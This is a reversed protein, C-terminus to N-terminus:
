RTWQHSKGRCAGGVGSPSFYGPKCDCWAKTGSSYCMQSARCPVQACPDSTNTALTTTAPSSTCGNEGYGDGVWGEQCACEHTGQSNICVANENCNNMTPDDSSCENIDDCRIPRYSRPIELDYTQIDELVPAYGQQCGCEYQIPPDHDVCYMGVGTCPPDEAVCENLLKCAWYGDGYAGDQCVCVGSDCRGWMHCQSDTACEKVLLGREIGRLSDSRVLTLISVFLLFAKM